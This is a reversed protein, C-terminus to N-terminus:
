ESVVLTCPNLLDEIENVNTSTTVEKKDQISNVYKVLGNKNGSWLTKGSPDLVAFPKKVQKQPTTKTNTTVKQVSDKSTVPNSQSMQSMLQILNAQLDDKSQRQVDLDSQLKEIQNKLDANKDQENKLSVELISLKGTLAHNEQQSETSKTMLEENKVELSEIKEKYKRSDTVLEAIETDKKALQDELKEVNAKHDTKLQAMEAKLEELQRTLGEVVKDKLQMDTRIAEAEERAEIEVNAKHDTKLQAMEAKLEELQRTLGEVVKDKLQMDTRIAEAEERAEIESQKALECKDKLEASREKLDKIEQQLEEQKTLFEDVEVKHATQMDAERIKIAESTSVMLSDFTTNIIKIANAIKQQDGKFCDDLEAPLPTMENRKIAMELVDLLKESETQNGEIKALLEDVRQKQSEVMKFSKVKQKEKKEEEVKEVKVEEDITENKIEEM